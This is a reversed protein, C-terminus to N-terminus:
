VYKFPDLTQCAHIGGSKNMNYRLIRRDATREWKKHGPLPKEGMVFVLQHWLYPPHVQSKIHWHVSIFVTTRFWNFCCRTNRLHFRHLASTSHCSKSINCVNLKCQHFLSFVDPHQVNPPPRMSSQLFLCVFALLKASNIFTTTNSQWQSLIVVLFFCKLTSLTLASPPTWTHRWILSIIRQQNAETEQNRTEHHFESEEQMLPSAGEGQTNGAQKVTLCRGLQKWSSGKCICGHEGKEEKAFYGRSQPLNM